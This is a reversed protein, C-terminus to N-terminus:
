DDGPPKVLATDHDRLDAPRDLDRLFARVRVRTLPVEAIRARAEHVLGSEAEAFATRFPAPLPLSLANTGLGDDSEALAVGDIAALARVSGVDLDPLDGMVVVARSHGLEALDALAADVIQPLGVEGHGEEILTAGHERAFDFLSREAVVYIADHPLAAHLVNLVHRALREAIKARSAEDFRSGLRSKARAFPKLPVLVAVRRDRSEQADIM